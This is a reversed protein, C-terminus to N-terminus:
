TSCKGEPDLRGLRDIFQRSVEIDAADQDHSGIVIASDVEICPTCIFGPRRICPYANFVKVIM